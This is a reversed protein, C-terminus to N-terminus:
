SMFLYVRGLVNNNSVGRTHGELSTGGSYPVVPMKYKRAINVIKVVDETSEPYVVVSHNAALCIDNLSNQVALQLLGEGPLYDSVALGHYALDEPDTTVTDETPFATRLENIAAAFDAISGYQPESLTDPQPKPGSASAVNYGIAGSTLSAVVISALVSGRSISKRPGAAANETLARRQVWRLDTRPKAGRSSSVLTNTRASASWLRKAFNAAIM